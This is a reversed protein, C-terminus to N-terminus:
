HTTTSPDSGNLRSETGAGQIARARLGALDPKHEAPSPGRNPAEITGAAAPRGYGHEVITNAASVRSPMPANPDEAIAELIELMRVSKVRAWERTSSEAAEAADAVDPVPPVIEVHEKATRPKRTPKRTM